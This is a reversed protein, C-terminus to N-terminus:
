GSEEVVHHSLRTMCPLCGPRFIGGQVNGTIACGMGSQIDTHRAGTMTTKTKMRALEVHFVFVMM